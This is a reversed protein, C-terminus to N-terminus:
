FPTILSCVFFNHIPQDRKKKPPLFEDFHLSFPQCFGKILCFPTLNTINAGMHAQYFSFDHM